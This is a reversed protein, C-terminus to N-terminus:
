NRDYVQDLYRYHLFFNFHYSGLHFCFCGTQINFRFFYFLISFIQVFILLSIYKWTNIMFSARLIRFAIFVVVIEQRFIGFIIFYAVMNSYVYYFSFKLNYFKNEFINLFLSPSTIARLGFM